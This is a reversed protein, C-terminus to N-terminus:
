CGGNLGRCFSVSDADTMAPWTACRATPGRLTLGWHTKMPTVRVLEPAPEDVFLVSDFLAAMYPRLQELYSDLASQKRNVSFSRRFRIEKLPAMQVPRCQAKM